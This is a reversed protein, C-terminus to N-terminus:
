RGGALGFEPLYLQLFADMLPKYQDFHSSIARAHPTGWDTLHLVKREHPVNEYIAQSHAPITYTDQLSHLLFVPAEIQRAAEAPAVASPNFAARLGSLSLAGPVFIMVPRGFQELAQERIIREMSSFASDAAVFAIGRELAATELATAGGYSIGMLGIQSTELGTRHALWRLAAVTDHKEFYGYTGFEGSSEGHLRADFALLHCGRDWFLPALYLGEYRTGGRGHLLLVACEGNGDNTFLWGALTVEGSEIRVNEPAPLGFQAPSEIQRRQRDEELSRTDFAVVLGSFYYGVGLYIGALLLITVLLATIVIRKM